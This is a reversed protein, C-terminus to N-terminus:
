LALHRKIENIASILNEPLRNIEDNDNAKSTINIIPNDECFDMDLFGREWLAMIDRNVSDIHEKYLDPMIDKLKPTVSYLFEGTTSNIGAVELAGQLILDDIISDENNM